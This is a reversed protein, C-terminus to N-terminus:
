NLIIQQIDTDIISPLNLLWQQNIRLQHFLSICFAGGFIVGSRILDVVSFLKHPYVHIV